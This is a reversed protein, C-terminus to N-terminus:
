VQDVKIAGLVLVDVEHDGRAAANTPSVTTSGAGISM